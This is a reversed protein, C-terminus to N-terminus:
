RTLFVGFYPLLLSSEREWKEYRMQLILCNLELLELLLELWGVHDELLELLINAPDPGRSLSNLGSSM